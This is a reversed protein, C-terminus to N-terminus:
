CFILSILTLILYYHSSTVFLIFKSKFMALIRQYIVLKRSFKTLLNSIETLSDMVEHFSGEEIACVRIEMILGKFNVMEKMCLSWDRNNFEAIVM